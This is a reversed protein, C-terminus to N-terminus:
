RRVSSAGIADRLARAFEGIRPGPVELPAPIEGVRGERVATLNRWGPEERLRALSLGPDSGIPLLVVDPQIRILAELSVQPSQGQLPASIRLPEGGAVEILEAIFNGTGAVIPPDLAVAYLVSPRPGAPVSARVSEIQTRVRAALSDAAVDAGLLHGLNRINRYVAATDRTTAAFVPIGLEELRDRIPSGGPGEWVVVLDPGLGVMAELSPDLGGGVSPLHAVRPDTDYRTRGVLREVAGLEVLTETVAPLLAIVRSAPRPLTLPRGLDDTVTVTDPSAAAPPSPPSADRCGILLALAAFALTCPEGRSRRAGGARATTM